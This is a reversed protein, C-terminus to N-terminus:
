LKSILSLNPRFSQVSSQLEGLENFEFIIFAPIDKEVNIRIVLSPSSKTSLYEVSYTDFIGATKLCTLLSYCSKFDSPSTIKFKLLTEIARVVINIRVDVSIGQDSEPLKIGGLGLLILLFDKFETSYKESMVTELMRDHWKNYELLLEQVLLIEEDSFTVIYKRIADLSIMKNKFVGLGM